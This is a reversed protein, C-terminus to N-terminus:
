SLLESIAKNYKKLREFDKDSPNPIRSLDRNDGLDLLKVTTALLNTKIRQIYDDYSDRKRHTLCDIADVIDWSFGEEFLNQLSVDTDEVVDHLVAVIRSEDDPAKTLLRLPHLIYPNGGKDLQGEHAQTAIIIARTLTSM